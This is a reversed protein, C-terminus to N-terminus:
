NGNTSHEIWMIFDNMYEVHGWFFTWLKLKSHDVIKKGAGYIYNDKRNKKTYALNWYMAKM